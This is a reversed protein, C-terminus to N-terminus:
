IGISPRDLGWRERCFRENLQLLLICQHDRIGSMAKKREINCKKAMGEEFLTCNLQCFADCFKEADMKPLGVLAKVM